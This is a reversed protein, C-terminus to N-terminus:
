GISIFKFEYVPLDKEVSIRERLWQAFEAESLSGEALAELSKM